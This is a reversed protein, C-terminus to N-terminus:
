LSPHRHVPVVPMRSIVSATGIALVVNTDVVVRRATLLTSYDLSRSVYVQRKRRLAEGMAWLCLINYDLSLRPPSFTPQM